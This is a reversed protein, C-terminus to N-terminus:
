YVSPIPRPDPHHLYPQNFFPRHVLHHHYAPYHHYPLLPFQLPAHPLPFPTFHPHTEGHPTTYNNTMGLTTNPQVIPTPHPHNDMSNHATLQSYHSPPPLNQREGLSTSPNSSNHPPQNRLPPFDDSNNSPLSSGQNNVRPTGFIDNALIATGKPSPHVKDRYLAQKPAGNMTLFSSDHCIFTINLKNCVLKMNLNTQRVSESLEDKGKTPIVSSVTIKATPFKNMVHKLTDFCTRTSVPQFRNDNIGTHIVVQKINHYERPDKLLTPIDATKLGRICVKSWKSDRTASKNPNLGKITSDGILLHTTGEIINFSLDPSDGRQAASRQTTPGRPDQTAHLDAPEDPRMSPSVGRQAISRHTPPGDSAHAYQDAPAHEAPAALRGPPSEGRLGASRHTPSGHFAHQDAQADKRGTPSDGRQMNRPSPHHKQDPPSHTFPVHASHPTPVKRTSTDIQHSPSVAAPMSSNFVHIKKELEKNKKELEGVRSKLSKIINETRTENMELSEIKENLVECRYTVEDHNEKTLLKFDNKVKQYNDLTDSLVTDKYFELLDRVEHLDHELTTVRDKLKHNKIILAAESKKPSKFLATRRKYKRTMTRNSTSPSPSPTHPSDTNQKPPLIRTTLLGTDLPTLLGLQGQVTGETEEKEPTSTPPNPPSHSDSPSDGM